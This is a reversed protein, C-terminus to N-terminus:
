NSSDTYASTDTILYSINFFNSGEVANYHLEDTDPNTKPAAPHQLLTAINLALIPVTVVLCIIAIGLM